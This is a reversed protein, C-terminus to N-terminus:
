VVYLMYLIGIADDAEKEDEDEEKEEV